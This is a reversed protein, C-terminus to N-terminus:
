SVNLYTLTGETQFEFMHHSVFSKWAFSALVAYESIYTSHLIMLIYTFNRTKLILYVKYEVAIRWLSYLSNLTVYSVYLYTFGGETQFSTARHQFVFM